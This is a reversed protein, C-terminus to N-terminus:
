HYIHSNHHHPALEIEYIDFSERLQLVLIFSCLGANKLWAKIEFTRNKTQEEDSLDDCVSKMSNFHNILQQINLGQTDDNGKMLIGEDDNM